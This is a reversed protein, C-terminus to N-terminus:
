IAPDPVTSARNAETGSAAPSNPPNKMMYAVPRRTPHTMDRAAERIVHIAAPAMRSINAIVRGRTADDVARRLLDGDVCGLQALIPDQLMADLRQKEHRLSWLIRARLSRPLPSM